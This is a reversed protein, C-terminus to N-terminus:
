TDSSQWFPDSQRRWNPIVGGVKVGSHTLVTGTVMILRPIDVTDNHGLQLKGAVAESVVAVVSEVVTVM